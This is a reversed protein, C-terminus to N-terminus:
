NTNRFGINSAEKEQCSYDAKHHWVTVGFLKIRVEVDESYIADTKKDEVTKRTLEKKIM